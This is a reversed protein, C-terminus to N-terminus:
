MNYKYVLVSTPVPFTQRRTFAALARWSDAPVRWPVPVPEIEIAANRIDVDEPEASGGRELCSRTESRVPCRELAVGSGPM